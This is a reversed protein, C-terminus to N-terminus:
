EEKALALQDPAFIHLLGTPKGLAKLNVVYRHVTSGDMQTSTFAVEVIGLFPYGSRKVVHDGERFKWDDAM